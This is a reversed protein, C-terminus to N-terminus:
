ADADGGLYAEIVKPDSYVKEPEGEAIKEGYHLVILRHSIEMIVKMVHEIIMITTGQQNIRKIIEVQDNQEKPNLGSSPEDLLLVEPRTALARAIELRKSFAYPMNEALEDRYEGIGVFDLLEEAKVCAEKNDTFAGSRKFLSGWALSWPGYRKRNVMATLVNELVTLTKFIRVIQFTRAIGMKNLSHTKLRTINKGQYLINGNTPPFVGSILNILTTKGAGNPGILGMIEGKVLSFSVEKVACLGGFWKSLKDTRLIDM